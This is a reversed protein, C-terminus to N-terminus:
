KIELGLGRLVKDTQSMDGILRRQPTPKKRVLLPLAIIQEEGALEPTHHIDIIELLYKGALHEECINKLNNIARMSNPSAGTIYLRLVYEINENSHKPSATVSVEKKQVM